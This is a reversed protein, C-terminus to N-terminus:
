DAKSYLVHATNGPFGKFKRKRRDAADFRLEPTATEPSWCRLASKGGERDALWSCVGIVWSCWTLASSWSIWHVLSWAQHYPARIGLVLVQADERREIPRPTQSVIWHEWVGGTTAIQVRRRGASKTLSSTSRRAFAIVVGIHVQLCNCDQIRTTPCRVLFVRCHNHGAIIQKQQQHMINPFSCELKTEDNTAVSM